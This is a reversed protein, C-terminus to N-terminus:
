ALLVCRALPEHSAVLSQLLRNVEPARRQEVGHSTDRPANEARGAAGRYGGDHEFWTCGDMWAHMWGHMWAYVRRHMAM